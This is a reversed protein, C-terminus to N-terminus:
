VVNLYMRGLDSDQRKCKGLTDRKLDPGVLRSTPTMLDLVGLLGTRWAWAWFM